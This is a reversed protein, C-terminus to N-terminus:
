FIYEVGVGIITENDFTNGEDGHQFLGDPDEETGTDINYNNFRIEPRIMLNDAVTINHTYTITWLSFGFGKAGDQDDWYEYRLAGQQNDTWDYMAYTGISWWHAGSKSPATTATGAHDSVRQEEAYGHDWNVALSLKEVQPLSYTAVIDYMMVDENENQDGWAEPGHITALSIFFDDNPQYTLYFGYTKGETNDIYTDWGNVAYLTLGLKDSPLFESVDFSMGTHTFPISNNYSQSHTYNPNGINEVLEFGIWTYMKGMTIPVTRGAVPANWTINATALAFRDNEGAAGDGAADADNGPGSFTIRQAKEGWYTHMQWGLPDEDTAAKDMFMAFNELVFTNDENEGVFNLVDTKNRSSGNNDGHHRLNYLYNTDIFGGVTIGRFLGGLIGSEELASSVASSIAAQSAEPVAASQIEARATSLMEARLEEMIEAKLAARDVGGGQAVVDVDAYLMSGAFIAFAAFLPLFLCGKKREM